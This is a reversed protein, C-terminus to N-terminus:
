TIQFQDIIFRLRGILDDYTIIDVINRYKRKIVEFDEKQASSIDNGRGMVIIGSPNTIKIRFNDPLKEKYKNTLTDEGQKGWKNLYFIYKEIQMVTGSLERLPIYNDRYMGETVICNDFPKKIEIIDTNGSSDVLLIDIKKNKDKYTDRVPAESFAAIYKPYLLLIIQIIESQWQKESYSDKSDLMDEIKKLISKYKELEYYRYRKSLNIGTKSIKNNIYANYREEGDIVADFYNKLVTCLRADAYKTLEYTNPFSKILRRFEAEPLVRSNSGGIFIDTKMIKGIKKFVSIDKVAIFFKLSIKITKYFYISIDTNLVRGEIKYYEGILRGFIFKLPSDPDPDYEEAQYLDNKSFQFTKRLTVTEYENLQEIVWSNDPESLYVLLLFDSHTEFEIM